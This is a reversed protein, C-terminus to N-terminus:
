ALTTLNRGTMRRALHRRTRALVFFITAKGLFFISRRRRLGQGGITCRSALESLSGGRGIIEVGAFQLWSSQILGQTRLSTWAPNWAATGGQRLGRYTAQPAALPASGCELRFRPRLPKSLCQRCLEHNAHYGRSPGTALNLPSALQWLPIVSVLNPYLVLSDRLGKSCSYAMRMGIGSAPMISLPVAFVTFFDQNLEVLRVPDQPQQSIHLITVDKPLTQGILVRRM